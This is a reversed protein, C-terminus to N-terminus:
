DAVVFCDSFEGERRGQASEAQRLSGYPGLQVRWFREGGVEAAEVRGGDRGRRRQEDLLRMANERQTFSGIQVYFSGAMDGNHYGPVGSLSEIRVHATGQGLMGLQNAAQYSLDLIRSRVFPGRDNIRVELSRGNDLNTVRLRTGMPLLKHAATMAYMNYVEGNSTRRGHFDKGYWSALGEETFGEASLLPTYTRGGVTYPRNTAPGYRRPGTEVPQKGCALLQLSLVTMLALLPLHVLWRPCRSPCRRAVFSTM